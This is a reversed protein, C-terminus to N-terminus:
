ELPDLICHPSELLEKNSKICRHEKNIGNVRNIVKERDLECVAPCKIFDVESNIFIVEQNKKGKNLKVLIPFTNTNYFLREPLQIVYEM